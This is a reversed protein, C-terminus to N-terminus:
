NNVILKQTQLGNGIQLQVMYVGNQLGATNLNYTNLGNGADVSQTAITKGQLDTVVIEGRAAQQTNTVITATGTTAPNPYLAFFNNSKTTNGISNAGGTLKEKDFVVKGTSSGSFGTFILRWIDGSKDKVFYVLSDALEYMFTTNNFSKWDYGITNIATAFTHANYNSYNVADSVPYAKAVEVGKNALVGTVNYAMPIFATYQTFTIDWNSSLPERNTAANNAISYYGFNKDTYDAKAITKSMENSGDINAYKFEYISNALRVIWLKKYDGNALKIIYLSDGTIYHTQLNYVGWGLDFDNTPDLNVNFAGVSWSTDTNYLKPWTAIATTDITAWASIDGNPYVWLENGNASNLLISSAVSNIEFAIDWNNKPSTGQEDNALSYWLQNSYQAGMFVSDTVLQAKTTFAVFFLLTSITLYRRM